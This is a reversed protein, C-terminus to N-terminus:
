QTRTKRRKLLSKINERLQVCNGFIGRGDNKNEFFFNQEREVHSLPPNSTSFQKELEAQGL